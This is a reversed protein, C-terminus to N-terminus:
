TLARVSWALESARTALPAHSRHGPTAPEVRANEVGRGGSTRLNHARPSPARSTRACELGPCASRQHFTNVRGAEAGLSVPGRRGQFCRPFCVGDLGTGASRRHAPRPTLLAQSRARSQSPEAAVGMDFRFSIRLRMALTLDVCFIVRAM